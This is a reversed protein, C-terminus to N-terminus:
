DFLYNSCKECILASGKNIHGCVECVTERQEPAAVKVVTCPKGGGESNGRKLTEDKKFDNSEEM